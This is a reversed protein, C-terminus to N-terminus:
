GTQIGSPAQVYRMTQADFIMHVAGLMGSRDKAVYANIYRQTWLVRGSEAGKGFLKAIKLEETGEARIQM